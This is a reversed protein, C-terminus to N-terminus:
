ALDGKLLELQLEEYRGPSLVKGLSRLVAQRLRLDGSWGLVNRQVGANFENLHRKLIDANINTSFFDASLSPISLTPDHAHLTEATIQITERMKRIFEQLVEARPKSKGFSSGAFDHWYFTVDQGEPQQMLVNGIHCDHWINAHALATLDQVYGVLFQLLDQLPLTSLEMAVVQQMVSVQVIFEDPIELQHHDRGNESLQYLPVSMKMCFQCEAAPLAVQFVLRTKWFSHQRWTHEQLIEEKAIWRRLYRNDNAFGYALALLVFREEDCDSVYRLDQLTTFAEMRNFFLPQSGNDVHSPLQFSTRVVIDTGPDCNATAITNGGGATGRGDFECKFYPQLTQCTGPSCDPRGSVCFALAIAVLEPRLM